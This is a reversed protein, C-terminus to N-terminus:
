TGFVLSLEEPLDDFRGPVTELAYFYPGVPTYVPCPDEECPVMSLVDVVTGDARFFAIDLPILTDKMWFGGSSERDFVFLMGDVDGLDTVFMLGQAREQPTAALAVTWDEGGVM